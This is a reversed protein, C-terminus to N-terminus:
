GMVIRCEDDMGITCIMAALDNMRHFRAYDSDGGLDESWPALILLTGEACAYFRQREPKWFNGIPEKQLHILRHRHDLLENKIRKECESIGPTVHVDGQMANDIISDHEQQWFTTTETPVMRGDALAMRRHFFVQHKEPHRLLTFNGFAGYRIGKIKICLARQMLEPMKRRLLARFPNEELYARWNELQGPRMLIRDNYNDDFLPPPTCAASASQVVGPSQQWWARSIGGKFAGVIQGLYKKPPLPAKIRIIMHIHDPMLCFPRWIEVMPYVTSIKQLEEDLIKQGLATPVIHPYDSSGKAARINGELHGFAPRRDTTTITVLYTGVDNYRHTSHRRTERHETDYRWGIGDIYHPRKKDM